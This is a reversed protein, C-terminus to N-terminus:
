TIGTLDVGFRDRATEMAVERAMKDGVSKNPSIDHKLMFRILSPMDSIERLYTMRKAMRNLSIAENCDHASEYIEAVPRIMISGGPVCKLIATDDIIQQIEVMRCVQDPATGDIVFGTSEFEKFKSQPIQRWWDPNQLELVPKIAAQHAIAINNVHERKADDISVNTNLITQIRNEDAHMTRLKNVTATISDEIEAAHQANKFHVNRFLVCAMLQEFGSETTKFDTYLVPETM